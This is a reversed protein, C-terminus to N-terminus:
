VRTATVRVIHGDPDFRAVEFLVNLSPELFSASGSQDGPVAISGLIAPDTRRGQGTRDSPRLGHARRARPVVRDPPCVRRLLGV